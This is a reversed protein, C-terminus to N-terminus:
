YSALVLEVETQFAFACEDDTFVFEYNVLGVGRKVTIVVKKKHLTKVSHLRLKDIMQRSTIGNYAKEEIVLFLGRICDFINVRFERIARTSVGLEPVMMGEDREERIIPVTTWPTKNLQDYSYKTTMNDHQKTTRRVINMISPAESDM